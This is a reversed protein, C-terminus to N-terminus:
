VPQRLLLEMADALEQVPRRGDLEVTCGKRLLPEVTRQHHVIEARQAASRGYPNGTRTSVRALLIPLPASLLVIHDFWPYFEGQNEVTGQVLLTRSSELLATIRVTHWRREADFWDGDDTDVCRYGRQAVAALLTSKGAGSMGTLLVRSM